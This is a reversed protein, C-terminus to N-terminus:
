NSARKECYTKFEEWTAHSGILRKKKSILKTPFNFVGMTDKQCIPCSASTSSTMTQNEKLTKLICSQYFYHGCTTVVPDSFANRCLLCAFAIGDEEIPQGREEKKEKRSKHTTGEGGVDRCFQDMELEKAEQEKKRKEEWEQEM